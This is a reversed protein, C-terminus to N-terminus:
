RTARKQRTASDTRGTGGVREQGDGQVEVQRKEIVQGIRVLEASAPKGNAKAFREYVTAFLDPEAEIDFTKGGDAYSDRLLQFAQRVIDPDLRGVQSAQAGHVNDMWHAPLKRAAEIKRAVEDGIRKGAKLQSLMSPGQDLALAQDKQPLDAIERSALLANLNKLRIAYIDDM